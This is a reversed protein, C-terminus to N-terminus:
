YYEELYVCNNDTYADYIELVDGLENKFYVKSLGDYEKLIEILEDVTM